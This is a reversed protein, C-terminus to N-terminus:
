PLSRTDAAEPGAPNCRQAVVRMLDRAAHLTDPSLGATIRESLERIPEDLRGVAARGAPTLAIMQRRGDTPCRARKVYGYAELKGVLRTIGPEPEIMRDRIELVPLEADAGRLIRLVNFQQFTLGHAECTAAHARRLGHAARLAERVFGSRGALPTVSPM